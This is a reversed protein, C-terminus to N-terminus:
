ILQDKNFSTSYYQAGLMHMHMEHISRATGHRTPCVYAVVEEDVVVKTDAPGKIVKM